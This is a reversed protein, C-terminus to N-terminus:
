RIVFKSFISLLSDDKDDSIMSVITLSTCNTDMGFTNASLTCFTSGGHLAHPIGHTETHTSGPGLSGLGGSHHGEDHTVRYKKGQLCDHRM